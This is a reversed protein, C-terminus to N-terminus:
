DVVRITSEPNKYPPHPRKWEEKKGMADTPGDTMRLAGM